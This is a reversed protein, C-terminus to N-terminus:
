ISPIVNPVWPVVVLPMPTGGNNITAVAIRPESTAINFVDLQNQATTGWSIGSTFGKPYMALKAIFFPFFSTKGDYPDLGFPANAAPMVTGMSSM